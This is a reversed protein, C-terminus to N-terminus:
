ITAMAVIQRNERTEACITFTCPQRQRSLLRPVNRAEARQMFACKKPVLRAKWPIKRMKRIGSPDKPKVEALYSM